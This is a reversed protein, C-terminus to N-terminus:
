DDQDDDRAAGRGKGKGQGRGQDPGAGRGRGRGNGRRADDDEEDSQFLAHGADRIGVIRRLIDKAGAADGEAIAVELKVSEMMADLLQMRLARQFAAKDDGFKEKAASSPKVTDLRRRADILASQIAAVAEFDAESGALDSRSLSRMSRGLTRMQMSFSAASGVSRGQSQQGREARSRRDSRGEFFKELEEETLYGDADIDAAEFMRDALRDPLEGRSLKGDGNADNEMLQDPSFGRTGGRGQDRGQADQAFAPLCTLAVVAVFVVFLPRHSM